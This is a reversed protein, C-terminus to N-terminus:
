RLREEIHYTSILQVSMSEGAVFSRRRLARSFSDGPRTRDSPAPEVVMRLVCVCRGRLRNRFPQRYSRKVGQINHYIHICVKM